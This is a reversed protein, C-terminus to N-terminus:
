IKMLLAEIFSALMMASKSIRPYMYRPLVYYKSICAGDYYINNASADCINEFVCFNSIDQEFEEPVETLVIFCDVVTYSLM